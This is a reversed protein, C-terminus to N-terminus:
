GIVIHYVSLEPRNLDGKRGGHAKQFHESHVWNHFDEKSAFVTEAVVHSGDEAKLLRFSLFGPVEKMSEPAKAFQEKLRAFHESSQLDIRNNVLYM